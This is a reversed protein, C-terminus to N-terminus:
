EIIKWPLLNILISDGSSLKIDSPEAGIICNANLSSTLMHSGIKRSPKCLVKGNEIWAKGFLYRYKINEVPFPETLEAEISKVTDTGMMENIIPWVWIMFGIYSSVPNGPLGIILTKNGTGFFLPRGPKQAVKWFHEEVGLDIFVDRVYDFRGMSVGGSSIVVDCSKLAESLFSELYSKNDKLVDQMLVEGGAKGVLDSFVYLNSNYIEGEKLNEGPAVLENGTGFIAIKPKKSVNLEGYGFTACIGIESPTIHTGKSILKDGKQIEEGRKRIHSEPQVEIMIQVNPNDSFGTTHEVMVIADSGSPIKAGTMCQMCEGENLILDSPVGASSIGINKLTIPNEKSAGIIDSSRVAFGDMASNNFRPSPFTAVIDEFLIRRRSKDLPVVESDLKFIKGQIISKAEKVSIM